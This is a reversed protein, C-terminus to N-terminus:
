THHVDWGGQNPTIYIGHKANFAAMELCVAKLMTMDRKHWAYRMRMLLIMYQQQMNM